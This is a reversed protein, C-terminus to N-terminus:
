SVGVKHVIMCISSIILGKMPDEIHFILRQIKSFKCKYVRIAHLIYKSETALILNAVDAYHANYHSRQGKHRAILLGSKKLYFHKPTSM